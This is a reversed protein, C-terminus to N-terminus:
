KGDMNFRRFIQRYYASPHTRNNKPMRYSAAACYLFCLDDKNKINLLCRRKKLVDPLPIYSGAATMLKLTFYTIVGNTVSVTFLLFLITKINISISVKHIMFVFIQFVTLNIITQFLAIFNNPSKSLSACTM